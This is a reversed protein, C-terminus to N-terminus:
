TLEERFILGYGLLNFEKPDFVPHSVYLKKLPGHHSNGYHEDTIRYKKFGYERCLKEIASENM